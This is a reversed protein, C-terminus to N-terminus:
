TEKKCEKIVRDYLRSQDKLEEQTVELRVKKKNPCTFVYKYKKGSPASLTACSAVLLAIITIIYKM